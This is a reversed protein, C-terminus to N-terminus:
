EFSAHSSFMRLEFNFIAFSNLIVGKIVVNIGGACNPVFWRHVACKVKDSYEKIINKVIKALDKEDCNRVDCKNYMFDIFDNLYLMAKIKLMFRKLDRINDNSLFMDKKCYDYFEELDILHENKKYHNDLGSELAKILMDDTELKSLLEKRFRFVLTSIQELHYVTSDSDIKIIDKKLSHKDCFEEFDKKAYDSELMRTFHYYPLQTSFEIITYRDSNM